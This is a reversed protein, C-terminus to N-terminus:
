AAPSKGDVTVLRIGPRGRVTDLIAMMTPRHGDAKFSALVESGDREIRLDHVAFSESLGLLVRGFDDTGAAFYIKILVDHRDRVLPHTIQAALLVLLALFSAILTVFILGSGVAVGVAAALWMSAATTLGHVDRRRRLITGAGLFGVGTVVQAAVRSPSDTTKFDAFGYAGALTFLTAGLGVLAHTRLGAPHGRWERELGILACVGVSVCLRLITQGDSIHV